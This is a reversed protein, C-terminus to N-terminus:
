RRPIGWRKGGRLFQRSVLSDTTGSPLPHDHLAMQAGVGAANGVFSIRERSIPPLLGIALASERSLYNGFAGAVYLRTLDSPELGHRELLLSWGAAIAGKALQLARVDNQTFVIDEGDPGAAVRYEVGRSGRRVLQHEHMRGTRDVIGRLLLGALVDVVGSGCIGVPALGGITQIVEPRGDSGFSVREIAGEAAKMGCRVQYGEFAPGSACSTVFIERNHM